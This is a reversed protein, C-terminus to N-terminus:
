RWVCGFDLMKAGSSESLSVWRHQLFVNKLKPKMPFLIPGLRSLGTSSERYELLSDTVSQAGGNNPDFCKFGFKKLKEM